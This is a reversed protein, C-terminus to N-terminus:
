IVSRVQYSAVIDAMVDCPVDFYDALEWVSRYGERIAQRVEDPSAIVEAAYREALCEAKLKLLPPTHLQYLGGRKIHGLEHALGVKKEQDSLGRAIGVHLRNDVEVVVAKVNTFPFETITAGSEVISNEIQERNM